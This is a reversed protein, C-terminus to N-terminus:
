AVLDFARRLAGVGGKDWVEGPDKGGTYPVDRSSVGVRNLKDLAGWRRRGTQDTWGHTAKRGQEDRDYVMHVWGTCFRRLFEVHKDTLRARLTGLVVDEPPVVWELPFLDFLGEVIWIDGGAWVREMAARTLGLWVPSWAAEPLLFETLAKRETNRAEFGLVKGKPSYIPCVLWGYLNLGRPPAYRARFAEDDPPEKYPHGWTVCRLDEYSEEKAGRGLLYGETSEELKCGKLAESLWEAV